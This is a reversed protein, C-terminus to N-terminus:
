WGNPPVYHAIYSMRERVYELLRDVRAQDGNAEKGIRWGIENALEFLLVNIPYVPVDDDDEREVAEQLQDGLADALSFDDDTLENLGAAQLLRRQRENSMDIPESM